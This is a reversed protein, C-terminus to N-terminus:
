LISSYLSEARHISIASWRGEVAVAAIYGEEPTVSSLSWRAQENADWETRLLRAPTDPGFAIEFQNLPLTLGDGRAKLFAEKLTWCTFFAARKQSEPTARIAEYEGTCFFRRALRNLDSTSRDIREIDVGIRGACTLGIMVRGGSHSLNFWLGPPGELEPKGKPGYRFRITSPDRGLYRGLVARLLAQADGDRRNIDALWLHVDRSTM